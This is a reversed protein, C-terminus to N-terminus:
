PQLPESWTVSKSVLLSLCKSGLSDNDSQIHQWSMWHTVHDPGSSCDAWQVSGSSFSLKLFIHVLVTFHQPGIVSPRNSITFIVRHNVPFYNSFICPFLPLKVYLVFTVGRTVRLDQKENKWPSCHLERMIWWCLSQTFLPCSSKLLIVLYEQDKRPPQSGDYMRWVLHKWIFCSGHKVLTAWWIFTSWTIIM